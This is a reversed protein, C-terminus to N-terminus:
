EVRFPNARIYTSVDSQYCLENIYDHVRPLVQPEEKMDGVWEPVCILNHPESRAKEVSDDVLVTDGQGWRTGAAAFDPHSRAVRNDAWLRSLRKYVQVRRNYDDRSLGLDDRSWVAVLRDRSAGRPLLSDIMSGVNQPRASSWVVVWFRTTIYDLFTHAHPRAVFHRPQKRYPRFLLTGNLDLVVLLPRPSILRNTTFSARLLYGPSPEPIGGSAASPKVIPDSHGAEKLRRAEKQAARNAAKRLSKASKSKEAPADLAPDDPQAPEDLRRSLPDGASTQTSYRQAPQQNLPSAPNSRLSQRIYDELPLSGGHPPPTPAAFPAPQNISTWGAAGHYAPLAAQQFTQPPQGSAAWPTTPAGGNGVGNAHIM